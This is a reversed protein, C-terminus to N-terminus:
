QNPNLNDIAEALKNIAMWIIVIEQETREDSVHSAPIMNFM